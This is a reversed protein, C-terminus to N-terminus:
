NDSTKLPLNPQNRRNMRGTAQCHCHGFFSGGELAGFVVLTVSLSGELPCCAPAM